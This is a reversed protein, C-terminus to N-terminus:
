RGGDRSPPGPLRVERGKQDTVIVETETIAKVKCEKYQEFGLGPSGIDLGVQFFKPEPSAALPATFLASALDQRASYNIALVKIQSPDATPPTAPPPPAPPAPPPPPERDLVRTIANYLDKKQQSEDIAQEPVVYRELKPPEVFYETEDVTFFTAYCTYGILGVLGLNGLLIGLRLGQVGTLQIPEAAGAPAEGPAEGAGGAGGAAGGRSRVVLFAGGGGLALFLLGVPLGGLAGVLGGLVPAEAFSDASIAVAAGLLALLGLPIAALKKM